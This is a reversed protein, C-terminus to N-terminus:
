KIDDWKFPAVTLAPRSFKLNPIKEILDFNLLKKLIKYLSNKYITYRYTEGFEADDNEVYQGITYSHQKDTNKTIFIRIAYWDGRAKKQDCICVKNIGDPLDNITDFYEILASIHRILLGRRNVKMPFCRCFITNYFEITDSDVLGVDWTDCSDYILQQKLNNYDKQLQLMLQYKNQIEELQNTTSM